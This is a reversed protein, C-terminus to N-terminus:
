FDPEGNEDFNPMRYKYEREAHTETVDDHPLEPSLVGMLELERAMSVPIEHEM